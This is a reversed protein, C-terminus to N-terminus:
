CQANAAIHEKFADASALADPSLAADDAYLVASGCAADEARAVDVGAVGGLESGLCMNLVDYVFVEHDGAEVGVTTGATNGGESEADASASARPPAAARVHMYGHCGALVRHGWVGSHVEAGARQLADLKESGTDSHDSGRAASTKGLTYLLPRHHVTLIQTM